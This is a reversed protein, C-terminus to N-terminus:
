KIYKNEIYNIFEAVAGNNCHCTVHECIEKIDDPAQGCCVPHEVRKFMDVDNYYDGVAATNKKDIGLYESLKLVANGKNVGKNVVELTAPSTYFYDFYESNKKSNLENEIKKLTSPLGFFSIKGWNGRPLDSIKNCFEYSLNDM